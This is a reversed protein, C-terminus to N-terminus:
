KFSYSNTLGFFGSANFINRFNKDSPKRDNKLIIKLDEPKKSVEIKKFIAEKVEQRPSATQKNSYQHLAKEIKLIELRVEEYKNAMLKVEKSEEHDTLGSVYMELIGTEIYEKINEM